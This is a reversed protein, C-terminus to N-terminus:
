CGACAHRAESTETISKQSNPTLGAASPAMAQVFQLFTHWATRLEELAAALEAPKQEVGYQEIEGLIRTLVMASVNSAAGKFRHAVDVVLQFDSDEIAAQLQNLDSWGTEHFKVLVRELIKFNGLCRGLLSLFDVSPTGNESNSFESINM